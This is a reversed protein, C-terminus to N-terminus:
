NSTVVEVRQVFKLKKWKRRSTSATASFKRSSQSNNFRMCLIKHGDKCCFKQTSQRGVMHETQFLHQSSYLVLPFAVPRPSLLPTSIVPLHHDEAKWVGAWGVEGSALEKDLWHLHCLTVGSQCPLMFGSPSLSIHPTSLPSLSRSITSFM